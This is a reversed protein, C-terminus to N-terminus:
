YREVRLEARGDAEIRILSLRDYETEPMPEAEQGSLAEVIAPVTNSHGVVLVAEGRHERLLTERLAQADEDPDRSVFERVEVELGQASASPQATLQTRRFPTAYAAALSLERLRGALAAARALGADSLGPDRPDDQAKEAHRVVVVLWGEEPVQLTQSWAVVPLALAALLMWRGRM